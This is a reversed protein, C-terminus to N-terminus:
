TIKDIKLKVLGINADKQCIVFFIGKETEKVLFVINQTYLIVLTKEVGLSKNTRNVVRAALASLKEADYDYTIRSETLVGDNNVLGAGLVKHIKTLENITM